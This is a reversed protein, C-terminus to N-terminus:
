FYQSVRYGAWIGVFAGITGFLISWPGFLPNHDILSGLWGGVVSGIALGIYILAKVRDTYRVCLPKQQGSPTDLFNV